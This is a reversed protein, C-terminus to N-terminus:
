LIQPLKRFRLLFTCITRKMNNTSQLNWRENIFQEKGMPFVLHIMMAESILVLSM